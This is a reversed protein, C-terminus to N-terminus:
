RGLVLPEDLDKDKGTAAEFLDGLLGAHRIRGYPGPEVFHDGREALFDAARLLGFAGNEVGHACALKRGFLCRLQNFRDSQRFFEFLAASAFDHGVFGGGGVICFKRFM